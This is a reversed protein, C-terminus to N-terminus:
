CRVQRALPLLSLVSFGVVLLLTLTVLTINLSCSGAGGPKFWYYM